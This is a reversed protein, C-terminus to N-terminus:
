EFVPKAEDYKGESYMKKAQDLSQAHLYGACFWVIGAALFLKKSLQKRIKM